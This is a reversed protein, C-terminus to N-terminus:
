EKRPDLRSSASINRRQQQLRMAQENDGRALAAALAKNLAQRQKKEKHKRWASIQETIDTAESAQEAMTTILACLAPAHALWQLIVGLEPEQGNELIQGIASAIPLLEGQDIEALVGAQWLQRAAQPGSLALEIMLRQSSLGPASLVEPPRPRAAPALQPLGLIGAVMAPALRLENATYEVYGSRIVPDKIAKIIEGCKGVLRSKGEPSSQDGEKITADIVAKVLPPAIELRAQLAEVGQARVLSDPDEGDPLWLVKPSLEAELFLKLGRTAAQRGADDGDFVLIIEPAQQSLLKIQQGTLATGMPAVVEGIGNAALTIVDFYGEVLVIRGKERVSTKARNLNYLNNSKQFVLTEPGNLYKAQDQGLTRGGFSIINGSIDSIPFMLRNRFRDYCGKGKDRPVLLGAQVAMDEKIDWAALFRGLADWSEPAYGLGFEAVTAPTLARQQLYQHAGTAGSSNLYQGFFKCTIALIQLIQKREQQTRKQEPSLPKQPLVVGFSDALLRVAEPFSINEAQMVFNFVSGGAGCGFCHWTCREQDVKLSPNKDNHFPCVGWFDKGRKNLKIKRSVVTVIDANRRVEDIKENAIPFNTM